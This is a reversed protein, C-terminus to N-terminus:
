LFEHIAIPQNARYRKGFDDRELMRAVTHTAALKIMDASSLKNMWTSNYVVETKAPDLIKFVQTKYTEANREVDEYSTVAEWSGIKRGGMCNMYIDHQRWLVGKPMGTTGGTYLIYLDDPSPTVDPGEPSGMKLADEYAIAGSLLPNNSEDAVQLYVEISPVDARIEEIVPALAAHYILVKPKADNFLYRLEDGVYRYNVNFPALRALYSGLMGELFENGNYLALAVHDQGSEHGQLQERETTAGYGRDALFSALRRSRELTESYTWRQDGWIICERTPNVKALHTFVTGLNFGTTQENM